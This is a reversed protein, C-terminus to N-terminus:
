DESRPPFKQRFVDRGHMDKRDAKYLLHILTTELSLLSLSGVSSERARPQSITRTFLAQARTSGSRLALVSFGNRLFLDAYRTM